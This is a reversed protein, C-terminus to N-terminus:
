VSKEIILASIFGGVIISLGSEFLFLGLTLIDKEFLEFYYYTFLFSLLCIILGIINCKRLYKSIKKNSFTIKFIKKM